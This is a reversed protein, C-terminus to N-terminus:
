KGYMAWAPEIAVFAHYDGGVHGWAENYVHWGKANDGDHDPQPGYDQSDLWQTVIPVVTEANMPVPFPTWGQGDAGTWALVLRLIKSGDQLQEKWRLATPHKSFAIRMCQELSGESTIDFQFNDM